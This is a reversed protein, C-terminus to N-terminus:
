YGCYKLYVILKGNRYVDEFKVSIALAMGGYKVCDNEGNEPIKTIKEREGQM